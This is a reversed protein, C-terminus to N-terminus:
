RVVFRLKNNNKKEIITHIASNSPRSIRGYIDRHVLRITPLKKSGMNVFPCKTANDPFLSYIDLPGYTRTMSDTSVTDTKIKMIEASRSSTQYLGYLAYGPETRHLYIADVGIPRIYFSFYIAGNVEDIYEIPYVLVRSGMSKIDSFVVDNVKFPGHINPDFTSGFEMGVMTTSSIPGTNFEMIRTSNIKPHIDPVSIFANNLEDYMSRDNGVMNYDTYVTYASPQLSETRTPSTSDTRLSKEGNIEIYVRSSPDAIYSPKALEPIMQSYSTNYSTHDIACGDYKQYSKTLWFCRGASSPDSDLLNILKSNPRYFNVINKLLTNMEPYAITEDNNIICTINSKYKHPGKMAGFLSNKSYINQIVPMNDNIEDYITMSMKATFLTGDNPVNCRIWNLFDDINGNFNQVSVHESEGINMEFNCYMYSILKDRTNAIIDSQGDGVINGFKRRLCNKYFYEEFVTINAGISDNPKIVIGHHYIIKNFAGM